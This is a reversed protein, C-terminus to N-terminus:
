SNAARRVAPEATQAAQQRQAASSRLDAVVRGPLPNQPAHVSLEPMPTATNSSESRRQLWREVLMLGGLVALTALLILGPAFVAISLFLQSFFNAQM